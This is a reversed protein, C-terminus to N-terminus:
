KLSTLKGRAIRASSTNPYEKIVRQLLLKASAKDGLEMFSLAQKLLANPVKNGKPYKKIVNEYELIAKEYNKEFYYCEGIWFQANDSYETSPFIEVFRRFKNRAENYDGQKFTKYAEAYSKEKDVTGEPSPAKTSEPKETVTTTDAQVKKGVGLFNEIYNIRFSIDDFKKQIGASDKTKLDSQLTALKMELSEIEGRLQQMQNRLQVFDAGTDAQGKRLSENFKLIRDADKRLRENDEKLSSLDEQLALIRSNLSRSVIKLDRSTACGMMCLIIIFSLFTIYKKM